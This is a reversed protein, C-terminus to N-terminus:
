LDLDLVSRRTYVYGSWVEGASVTTNAHVLGLQGHANASTMGTAATSGMNAVNWGTATLRLASVVSIEPGDDYFRFSTDFQNWM